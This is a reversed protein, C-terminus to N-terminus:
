IGKEKRLKRHEAIDQNKYNMKVKSIHGYERLSIYLKIFIFLLLPWEM